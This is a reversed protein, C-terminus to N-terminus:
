LLVITIIPFILSEILYKKLESSLSHKHLKLSYLVSSIRNITKSIHTKWTLSSDFWGLNKIENVFYIEIGKIVIKNINSINLDNTASSTGLVIAHTKKLNAEFGNIVGILFLM